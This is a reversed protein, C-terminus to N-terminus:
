LGGGGGGGFVRVSYNFTDLTANSDSANHVAITGAQLTSSNTQVTWKITDNNSVSFNTNEDIEVASGNNKIYYVTIDTGGTTREWYLNISSTIGSITQNSNSGSGGVIDNCDGWNVANPTVDDAAAATQLAMMAGKLITM